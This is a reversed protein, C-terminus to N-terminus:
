KGNNRDKIKKITWGTIYCLPELVAREVAGIYDRQGRKQKWIDATRHRAIHELTKRVVSSGFKNQKYGYNVLPMFLFHYGLQYEVPLNRSQALWIKQRFSGFGYHENMATCVIKNSSSGGGSGGSSSSSKASLSDPRKPPAKSGTSGSSKPPTGPNWTDKGDRLDYYGRDSGGGSNNSPKPASSGGGGSSGGSSPPEVWVKVKDQYVQEYEYYLDYKGIATYQTQGFSLSRTKDLISVDIATLERRGTRFSLESNSQLYFVGELIGEADTYVPGSLSTPGGFKAPFATEKVFSDGPNRFQSNRDSENYDEVSYSTNVWKTVNINEFFIWHPTSPRLGVFKFFLFKPRCIPIPEFGLEKEVVRTKNVIKQVYPM